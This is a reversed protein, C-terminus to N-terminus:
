IASPYTFFIFHTFNLLFHVLMACLIRNTKYYTFGYFLGCIGALVMYIPGDRFHAVGFIISTLIISVVAPYLQKPLWQALNKQLFGRYIVEESFSVFLFNNILWILTINPIKPDFKVYGSLLAPSIIVLINLILVLATQKLAKINIYKENVVLDSVSYIILAAMVKDINIYLTYPRSAASVKEMLVPILIKFGPINHLVFQAVLVSLLVFFVFKLKTHIEGWNFYLFSMVALSALNIFGQAAIDNEFLALASTLIIGIYAYLRNRTFLSVLVTLGLSIIDISM